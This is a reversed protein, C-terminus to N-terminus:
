KRRLYGVVTYGSGSKRRNLCRVAGCRHCVEEADYGSQLGKTGLVGYLHRRSIGSCPPPRRLYRDIWTGYRTVAM